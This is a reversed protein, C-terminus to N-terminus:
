VRRRFCQRELRLGTMAMTYNKSYLASYTMKQWASPIQAPRLTNAILLRQYLRASNAYDKNKWAQRAEQVLSSSNDGSGSDAIRTKQLCGTLLFLVCLFVCGRRVM